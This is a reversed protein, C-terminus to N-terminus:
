LGGKDGVDGVIDLPVGLMEGIIRGIVIEVDFRRSGPCDLSPGLILGRVRNNTPSLGTLPRVVLIAPGLRLFTSVANSSILRRGTLLSVSSIRSNCTLNMKKNGSEAGQRQPHSKCETMVRQRDAESKTRMNRQMGNGKKQKRGETSGSGDGHLEGSVKEESPDDLM